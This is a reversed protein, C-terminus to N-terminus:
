LTGNLQKRGTGEFTISPLCENLYLGAMRAGMRLFYPGAGLSGLGSKLVAVWLGGDRVVWLTDSNLRFSYGRSGQTGRGVGFCQFFLGIAGVFDTVFHFRLRWGQLPAPEGWRQWEESSTEDQCNLSKMLREVDWLAVLGARSYFHGWLFRGLSVYDNLTKKIRKEDPAWLVKRPYM